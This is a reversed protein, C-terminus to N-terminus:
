FPRTDAGSWVSDGWRFWPGAEGPVLGVVPQTTFRLIRKDL